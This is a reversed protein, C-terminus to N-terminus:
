AVACLRSSVEPFINGHFIKAGKRRQTLNRGTIVERPQM